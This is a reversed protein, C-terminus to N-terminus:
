ATSRFSLVNFLSFCSTCDNKGSNIQFIFFKVKSLAFFIDFGSFKTLKVQFFFKFNIWYGFKLFETWNVILDFM